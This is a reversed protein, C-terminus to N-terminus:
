KAISYDSYSFYADNFLDFDVIKKTIMGFFALM